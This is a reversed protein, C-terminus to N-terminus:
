STRTTSQWETLSGSISTNWFILAQCGEGSLCPVGKVKKLPNRPISTTKLLFCELKQAYLLVYCSQDMSRYICEPLTALQDFFHVDGRYKLFLWGRSPNLHQNITWPVMEMFGGQSYSRQVIQSLWFLLMHPVAAKLFRVCSMWLPLPFVLNTITYLIHKHHMYWFRKGEPGHLSVGAFAQYQQPPHHDPWIDTHQKSGSTPKSNPNPQHQIKWPIDFWLWSSLSALPCSSFSGESNKEVQGNLWLNFFGWNANLIHVFLLGPDLM